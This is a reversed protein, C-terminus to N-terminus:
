TFLNLGPWIKVTMYTLVILVTENITSIWFADSITDDYSIFVPRTLIAGQFNWRGFKIDKPLRAFLMQAASKLQLWLCRHDREGSRRFIM